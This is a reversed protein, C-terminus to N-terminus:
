TAVSNEVGLSGAIPLRQRLWGLCEAPTHLEQLAALAAQHYGATFLWHYHLHVIPSTRGNMLEPRALLLHLPVNYTDAYHAVRSTRSWIAVAAAAQNSGWYESSEVGVYGTSAHVNLRSGRFPRLGAAVSRTLLDAWATLIGTTRRVVILGGNYAARVHHLGDTTRVFPLRELPFGQLEALRSWYEDFRDAPGETASGKSDVPRVGVDADQPLEPEGLFVTDSDLVVIWESRARTEAWAAAFVRNASAYAPCITNLPEEVYEVGLAHLRRQVDAGVGLGQRPALAVIPAGRHRGGFRRISACLLMAQERIATEEICLVFTVTEAMM